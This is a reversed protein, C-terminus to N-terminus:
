PSTLSTETIPMTTRPAEAVGRSRSGWHARRHTTVPGGSSPPTMTAEAFAKSYIPMQRPTRMTM